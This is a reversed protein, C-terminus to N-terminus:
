RLIDAWCDPCAGEETEETTGNPFAVGCRPCGDNCECRGGECGSWHEPEDLLAKAAGM